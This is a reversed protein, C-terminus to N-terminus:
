RLAFAASAAGLRATGTRSQAVKMARAREIRANGLLWVACVTVALFGIVVHRGDAISWPGVKLPDSSTSPGFIAGFAVMALMPIVAWSARRPAFVLIAVTALSGVTITVLFPVLVGQYEGAP